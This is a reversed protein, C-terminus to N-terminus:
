RGEGYNEVDDSHAGEGPGEHQRHARKQSHPGVSGADEGVGIREDDFPTEPEAPQKEIAEALAEFLEALLGGQSEVAMSAFDKAAKIGHKLAITNGLNEGAAANVKGVLQLYESMLANARETKGTVARVRSSMNSLGAAIFDDHKSPQPQAAAAKAKEQAIRQKALDAQQAPTNQPLPDTTIHAEPLDEVDQTMKDSLNAAVLVVAVFARKQAMKVLTNVVDAIDPNPIRFQRAGVTISYQIAPRGKLDVTQERVTGNDIADQFAQWYEAPKGYPGSTEAKEVAFKYAKHTRTGDRQQLDDKVLHSPVEAEAVWRYRHKSERSNASGLAEGVFLEGRYLSCRVLYYFTPEAADWDEIKEVIEFRPSWGFLTCVSEAGPKLLSPKAVGPITGFHIGEQMVDKVLQNVANFRGKMTEIQMVPLFISADSPPASVGQLASASSSM